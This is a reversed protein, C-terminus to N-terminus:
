YRRRCTEHKWSEYIGKKLNVVRGTNAAAVVLDTQSVLFCSNAACGYQAAM